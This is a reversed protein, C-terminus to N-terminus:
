KCKTTIWLMKTMGNATLCYHSPDADSRFCTAEEGKGEKAQQQAPPPFHVRKGLLYNELLDCRCMMLVLELLCPFPLSFFAPWVRRAMISGSATVGCTTDRRSASPDEYYVSIGKMCGCSGFRLHTSSCVTRVREERSGAKGVRLEGLVVNDPPILLAASSLSSSV